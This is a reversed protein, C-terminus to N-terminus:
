EFFSVDNWEEASQQQMPEQDTYQVSRVVDTYGIMLSNIWINRGEVIATSRYEFRKIVPSTPQRSADIANIQPKIQTVDKSNGASYVKYKTIPAYKGTKDKKFRSQFRKEMMEEDIMKNFFRQSEHLILTKLRTEYSERFAEYKAILEAHVPDDPKPKHSQSFDMKIEKVGKPNTYEYPAYGFPMSMEPASRYVFPKGDYLITAQQSAGVNKPMTLTLLWPKFEQTCPDFFTM